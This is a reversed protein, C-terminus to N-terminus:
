KEAKVQNIFDKINECKEYEEEQIFHQKMEEMFPLYVDRLQNMMMLNYVMGYMSSNSYPNIEDSHNDM